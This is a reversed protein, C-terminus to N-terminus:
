KGNKEFLKFSMVTSPNVNQPYGRISRNQFTKMHTPSSILCATHWRLSCTICPCRLLYHIHRSPYSKGNSSKYTHNFPNPFTLGVTTIIFFWKKTVQRTNHVWKTCHHAWDCWNPEIAIGLSPKTQWCCSKDFHLRRTVGFVCCFRQLMFIQGPLRRPLMVLYSWQTQEKWIATIFWIKIVNGSIMFFDRKNKSNNCSEVSSSVVSLREQRWLRLFGLEKNKFYDRRMCFFPFPM